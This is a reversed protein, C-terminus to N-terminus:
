PYRIRLEPIRRGCRLNVSMRPDHLSAAREEHHRATSFGCVIEHESISREDCRRNWRESYLPESGSLFDGDAPDSPLDKQADARRTAFGFLLTDRIDAAVSASAAPYTPNQLRRRPGRAGASQFQVPVPFRWSHPRHAPKRRFEM